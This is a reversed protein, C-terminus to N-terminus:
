ENTQYGKSSLGMKDHDIVNLRPQTISAAQWRKSASVVRQTMFM